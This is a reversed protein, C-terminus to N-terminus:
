LLPEGVDKMTLEMTNSNPDVRVVRVPVKVGFHCKDVFGEKFNSKHVKGCHPDGGGPPSVQVFVGWITIGQVEGELWRDLPVDAFDAVDGQVMVKTRKRELDGTRLTLFFREGDNSLIRGSVVDGVRLRDEEQPFGDMWEGVELMGGKEAGIDVFATSKRYVRTVVGEHMSGPTLAELPLKKFPGVLDREVYEFKVKKAGCAV